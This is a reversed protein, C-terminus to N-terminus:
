ILARRWSFAFFTIKKPIGSDRVVVASDLIAPSFDFRCSINSFASTDNSPRFIYVTLLFDSTFHRTILTTKLSM